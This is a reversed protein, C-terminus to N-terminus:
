FQLFAFPVFEACTSKFANIIWPFIIVQPFFTGGGLKLYHLVFGIFRPIIDCLLIM